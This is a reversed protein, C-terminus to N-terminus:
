FLKFRLQLKFADSLELDDRVHDELSVFLTGPASYFEVGGGLDDGAELWWLTGWHAVVLGVWEISQHLVIFREAIQLLCM